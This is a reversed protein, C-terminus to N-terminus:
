SCVMSILGAWVRTWFGTGAHEGSEILKSDIEVAELVELEVEVGFQSWGSLDWGFSRWSEWLGSDSQRWFSSWWVGSCAGAGHSLTQESERYLWSDPPLLLSPFFLSPKDENPVVLTPQNSPENTSSKKKKEEVNSQQSSRDPTSQPLWVTANKVYLRRTRMTMKLDQRKGWCESM